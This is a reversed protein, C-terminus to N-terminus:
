IRLDWKQLYFVFFFALSFQCGQLLIMLLHTVERVGTLMFLCFTTEKMLYGICYLIVVTFDATPKQPGCYLLIANLELGLVFLM